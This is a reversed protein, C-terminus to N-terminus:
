KHLIVPVPSKGKQEVLVMETAMYLILSLDRLTEPKVNNALVASQEVAAWLDLNFAQRGQKNVEQTDLTTNKKLNVFAVQEQHDGELDEVTAKNAESLSILPEGKIKIKGTDYNSLLDYSTSLSNTCIGSLGKSIEDRNNKATNIIEPLKDSFGCDSKGQEADRHHGRHVGISFGAESLKQLGNRVSIDDFDSNGIISELVLPHLSGGLMQPGQESKHAPRGDVCRPAETKSINKEIFKPLDRVTEMAETM